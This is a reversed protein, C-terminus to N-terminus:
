DQGSTEEGSEELGGRAALVPPDFHYIKEDARCWGFKERAVREVARPNTKLGHIDEQMRQYEYEVSLLKEELKDSELKADRYQAYVPLLFYGVACVAVIAAAAFLYQEAKM